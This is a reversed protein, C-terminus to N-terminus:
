ASKKQQQNQDQTNKEKPLWDTMKVFGRTEKEIHYATPLSPLTIGKILRCLSADVIGVKKCFHNQRIGNEKLYEELKTAYKQDNEM